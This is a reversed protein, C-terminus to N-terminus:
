KIASKGAKRRVHEGSYRIGKGKYPEPPRISRIDAAVQGVKQKDVGEVIIKTPGETKYTVGDVAKFLVPKSYGVSINLDKGKVEAKYGVGIIELVKQFGKSVGEVMNSVLMRYLGWQASVNDVETAPSLMVQKDKIEVAIDQSVVQSLTSKPGKVIVTNGEKKVEVGDPIDIPKKGIRSM